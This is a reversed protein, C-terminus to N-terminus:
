GLLAFAGISLSVVAVTLAIVTAKWDTKRHSFSM